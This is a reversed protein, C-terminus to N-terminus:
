ISSAFLISIQILFVMSLPNIMNVMTEDFFKNKFQFSDLNIKQTELFAMHREMSNKDILMSVNLYLLHDQQM